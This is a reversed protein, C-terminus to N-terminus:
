IHQIWHHHENQGTKSSYYGKQDFKTWFILIILNCDFNIGLILKFIDFKMFIKMQRAKVQFCEKQAYKAWFQRSGVYTPIIGIRKHQIQHYLENPESKTPFLGKRYVKTWFIKQKLRLKTELIIWCASNLQSTRKAWFVTDEFHFNM